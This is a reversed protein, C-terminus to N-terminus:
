ETLVMGSDADGTSSSAAIFRAYMEMREQVKQSTEETMKLISQNKANSLLFKNCTTEGLNIDDLWTLDMLDDDCSMRDWISELPLIITELAVNKKVGRDRLRVMASKLAQFRDVVQKYTDENKESTLRLTAKLAQFHEIVQKYNDENAESALRLTATARNLVISVPHLQKQTHELAMILLQKDFPCHAVLEPEANALHIKLQRVAGEFVLGQYFGYPELWPDQLTYKKYSEHRQRPFCRPLTKLDELILGYKEALALPSELHLPGPSSRCSPCATLYRYGCPFLQGVAEKAPGLCVACHKHLLHIFTGHWSLKGASKQKAGMIKCLKEWDKEAEASQRLTLYWIKSTTLLSLLTFPDLYQIIERRLEYPLM